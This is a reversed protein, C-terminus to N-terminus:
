WKMQKGDIWAYYLGYKKDIQKIMKEIDKDKKDVSIKAIRELRERM